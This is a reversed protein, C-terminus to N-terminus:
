QCPVIIAAPLNTLPAFGLATVAQLQTSPVEFVGIIGDAAGCVASYMNGDVGCSATQVPIRAHNLQMQMASITTGGGYCQISGAYKYVSVKTATSDTNGCSVQITCAAVFAAFGAFKFFRYRLKNAPARYNNLLLTVDTAM